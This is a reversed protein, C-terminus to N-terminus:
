DSGPRGTDRDRGGRVIFKGGFKEIVAPSVKMYEQYQEMNTVNVKAIVYASM